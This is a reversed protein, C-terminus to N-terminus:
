NNKNLEALCSAAIFGSRTKYEPTKSVRDDIKKILLEPLTVNIKHSKGLYPLIDFDIVAWIPSQETCNEMHHDISKGQPIDEGYEALINLHESIVHNIKEIGDTMTDAETKCGPLDPVNVSYKHSGEIRKILLIYKMTGSWYNTLVIMGRIVRLQLLRTVRTVGALTRKIGRTVGNLSSFFGQYGQSKNTHTNM